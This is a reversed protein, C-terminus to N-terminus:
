VEIPRGNEDWKRVAVVEGYKDIDREEALRANPHWRTSTGLARGAVLPIEEELTGDPYWSRETGIAVGNVVSIMWLVNGTADVDVIEGTFAQGQYTYTFEDEQSTDDINVCTTTDTASPSSWGGTPSAAWSM